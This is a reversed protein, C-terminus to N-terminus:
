VNLCSQVFELAVDNFIEPAEFYVSHGTGPVVMMRSGPVLSQAIEMLPVPMVEDHEGGVFLVPMTLAALQERTASTDTPRELARFRQVQSAADLRNPGHENLLRIQKYLFAREKHRRAFEPALARKVGNARRRDWIARAGERLDDSAALWVERRMGAFTNAFLLGKVRQPQALAAGLCSYGGMSQGILVAGDIELHDLLALLDGVFAEPGGDDADHSLGWGRQDLTVCRHHRSLAPVQQWWSLHNGGAGHVLVVPFGNGYEEYYLDIANVPAYPVGPYYGSAARRRLL